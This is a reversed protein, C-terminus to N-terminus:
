RTVSGYLLLKIEPGSIEGAGARLLSEGLRRVDTQDVTQMLVDLCRGTEGTGTPNGKPSKLDRKREKNRNSSEEREM